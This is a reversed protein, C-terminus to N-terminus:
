QTLTRRFYILACFAVISLTTYTVPGMLADIGERLGHPMGVNPNVVFLIAQALYLVTVLGWVLGAISNKEAKLYYYALGLNLLMGLLFFVALGTAFTQSMLRIGQWARALGAANAGPARGASVRGPEGRVAPRQHRRGQPRALFARRDAAGRCTP